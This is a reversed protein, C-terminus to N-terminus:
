NIYAKGSTASGFLLQVNNADTYLVDPLVTSGGTDVVSVSPFKALSHVVNWVSAPSSQNHVYNKDGGSGPTGPPGEPGMLSGELVWGSGLIYQYWNGNDTDLWLDNLNMGSTPATPQSYFRTGPLGQPGVKQLDVWGASTKVRPVTM